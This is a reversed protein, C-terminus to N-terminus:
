RAVRAESPDTELIGVTLQEFSGGVLSQLGDSM